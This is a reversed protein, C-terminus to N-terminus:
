PLPRVADLGRNAEEGPTDTDSAESVEGLADTDPAEAEENRDIAAVEGMHRVSAHLQEWVNQFREEHEASGDGDRRAVACAHFERVLGVFYEVEERLDLYHREDPLLRSALGWVGAELILVGFLVFLVQLQLSDSGFLVSLFIVGMGVVPLAIEFIRRITRKVLRRGILAVV